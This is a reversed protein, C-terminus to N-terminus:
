LFRGTKRQNRLTKLVFLARYPLSDWNAPLLGTLHKFTHHHFLGASEGGAEKSRVQYFYTTKM